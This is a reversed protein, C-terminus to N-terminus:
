RQVAGPAGGPSGPLGPAGAAGGPAGAGASGRRLGDLATRIAPADACAVTVPVRIIRERIAVREVEREDARQTVEALAAAAAARDKDQQIRVEAEISARYAARVAPDHVWTLWVWASVVCFVAGALILCPRCRLLWPLLVIM